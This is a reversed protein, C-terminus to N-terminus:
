CLEVVPMVDELEIAGEVASDIAGANIRADDDLSRKFEVGCRNDEGMLVRRAHSLGALGILPDGM